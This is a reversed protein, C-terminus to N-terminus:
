RYSYVFITKSETGRAGSPNNHVYTRKGSIKDEFDKIPKCLCQILKTNDRKRGVSISSM